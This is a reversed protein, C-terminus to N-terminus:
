RRGRRSSGARHPFAARSRRPIECVDRADREEHLVRALARSSGIPAVRVQRVDQRRDCVDDADLQGPGNVAAREEACGTRGHADADRCLAPLADAGRGVSNM